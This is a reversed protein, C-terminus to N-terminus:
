VVTIDVEINGRTANSYPCVQHAKDAISQATAKDLEGLDVILKVAIAFGGEIPGIGVEGKVSIDKGLKVKEAAAVHKLAGIYCAAYGAAFMQEPNTGEGGAGGLEKPTTLTVSLNGDDSTAKGERGGTVTAKGTYIVNDLKHM